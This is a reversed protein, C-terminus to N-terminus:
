LIPNAIELESLFKGDEAVWTLFKTLMDFERSSKEILVRRRKKIVLLLGDSMLNAAKIGCNFTMGPLNAPVSLLRATVREFGNAFKTVLTHDKVSM